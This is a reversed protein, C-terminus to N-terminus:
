KNKKLTIKYSVSGTIKVPNNYRRNAGTYSRRNGLNISQIECTDALMETLLACERHALNYFNKRGRAQM